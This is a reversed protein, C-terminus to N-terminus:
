QEAPPNIELRACVRALVQSHQGFNIAARVSSPHVGLEQALSKANLGKMHLAAKAAATFRKQQPAVIM